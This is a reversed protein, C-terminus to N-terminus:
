RRAGPHATPGFDLRDAELIAEATMLVLIGAGLSLLFPLPQVGEIASLALASSCIVGLRALFGLFIAAPFRTPHLRLRKLLFHQPLQTCLMLLTGWFAADRDRPGLALLAGLVVVAGFGLAVSVFARDGHRPAWARLTM